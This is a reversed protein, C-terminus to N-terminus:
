GHYYLNINNKPACLLMAVYSALNASITPLNIEVVESSIGFCWALCDRGEFLWVAALIFLWSLSKSSPLPSSM